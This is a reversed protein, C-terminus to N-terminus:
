TAAEVVSMQMAKTSVRGVSMLVSVLQLLVMLGSMATLLLMAEPSLAPRVVMMDGIGGRKM